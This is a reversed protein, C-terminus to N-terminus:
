DFLRLEPARVLFRGGWERVFSLQEMIEDRLNWPLIFVLRADDRPNGRARPHPYPHGTPLSGAQAPEPRM